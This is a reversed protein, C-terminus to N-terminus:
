PRPKKGSSPEVASGSGGTTLEKLKGYRTLRPKAYAKKRDTIEVTSRHDLV